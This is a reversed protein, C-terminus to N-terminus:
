QENIFLKEVMQAQVELVQQVIECTEETFETEFTRESVEPDEILTGGKGKEYWLNFEKEIGSITLYKAGMFGAWRLTKSKGTILKRDSCTLYFGGMTILNKGAARIESKSWEASHTASSIFIAFLVLINRVRKVSRFGAVQIEERLM